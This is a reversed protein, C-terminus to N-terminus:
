VKAMAPRHDLLSASGVLVDDDLGEDVESLMSSCITGFM